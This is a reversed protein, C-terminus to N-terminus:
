PDVRFRYHLGSAGGVYFVVIRVEGSAPGTFTFTTGNYTPPDLWDLVTPAVIGTVCDADVIQVTATVSPPVTWGFFTYVHGPTVTLKWWGSTLPPDPLVGRVLTSMAVPESGACTRGGESDPATVSVADQPAGGAGGVLEMRPDCCVPLGDPRYEMDADPDLQAEGAFQEETGCVHGAGSGPVAKAANYPNGPWEAPKVGPPEWWEKDFDWDPVYVNSPFPIAKAGPVAPYFRVRVVQTSDAFPQADCDFPRRSWDVM